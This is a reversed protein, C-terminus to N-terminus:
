NIESPMFDELNMWMTAHTLSERQKRAPYYEVTHINWIKNIWEDIWVCKHKEWRRVRALLAAIIVPICM